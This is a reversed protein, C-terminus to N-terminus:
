KKDQDKLYHNREEAMMRRMDEYAQRLIRENEELDEIKRELMAHIPDCGEKEFFESYSNKNPKGNEYYKMLLSMKIGLFAAIKEIKSFTVDIEGNEIKSYGAISIGLISAIDKQKLGKQKRIIQIYKGIETM